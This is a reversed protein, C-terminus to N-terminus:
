EKITFTPNSLLASVIIDNIGVGDLYVVSRNVIGNEIFSIVTSDVAVENFDRKTEDLYTFGTEESYQDGRLPIKLSQDVEVFKPSGALFTLLSDGNPVKYGYAFDDGVYVDVNTYM